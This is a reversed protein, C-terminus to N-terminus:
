DSEILAMEIENLSETIPNSRGTERFGMRQYLRAANKNNELIWLTPAAACQQMAFQLLKSGYGRNQHSPLIYLDEILSETISVLGIPEDETLLYIKSGHNLKEQLYDRQHQPTHLEVFDRSCFSRHSAQWAVSHVTAAQLLNNEDVSIIM